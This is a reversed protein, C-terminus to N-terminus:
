NMEITRKVSHYRQSDIELAYKQISPIYGTKIHTASLEWGPHQISPFPAGDPLELDYGNTQEGNVIDHTQWMSYQMTTDEPLLKFAFIRTNGDEFHYEIREKQDNRKILCTYM